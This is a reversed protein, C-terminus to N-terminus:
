LRISRVTTQREWERTQDLSFGLHNSILAQVSLFTQHLFLLVEDMNEVTVCTARGHAIDHRLDDFKRLREIDFRFGSPALVCDARYCKDLIWQVKKSLSKTCLVRAAAAAKARLLDAYSTDKVTKLPVTEEATATEWIAPQVEAILLLYDNMGADLTAQIIVVCASDVTSRAWALKDTAMNQLIMANSTPNINKPFADGMTDRISRDLYSALADGIIPLSVMFCERLAQVFGWNERAGIHVDQFRQELTRDMQDSM